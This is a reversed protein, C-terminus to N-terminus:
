VVVVWMSSNLVFLFCIFCSISYLRSYRMKILNKASDGGGAGAVGGLRRGCGVGCRPYRSGRWSMRSCRGPVKSGSFYVRSM